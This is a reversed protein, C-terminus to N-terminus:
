AIMATAIKWRAKMMRFLENAKVGLPDHRDTHKRVKQDVMEIDEEESDSDHVVEAALVRKQKKPENEAPPKETAAQRKKSQKKTPTKVAASPKAAARKKGSGPGPMKKARKLTSPKAKQAVIGAYEALKEITLGEIEAIINDEHMDSCMTDTFWKPLGLLAVTIDNLMDEDQQMEAPLTLLLRAIVSYFVGAQRVPLTHYEGISGPVVVKWAYRNWPQGLLHRVIEYACITRLTHDKIWDPIDSEVRLQAVFKDTLKEEQIDYFTDAVRLIRWEVAEKQGPRPLRGIAQLIQNATWTFQIVLGRSCCRHLNLGFSALQLSTIFINMGSAEDNFAAVASEREKPTHASRVSLVRFGIKVLIAHIWRDKM